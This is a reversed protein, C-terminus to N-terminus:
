LLVSAFKKREAMTLLDLNNRCFNHLAADYIDRKSVGSKRIILELLEEGLREHEIQEATKVKKAM